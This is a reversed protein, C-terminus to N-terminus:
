NNETRGIFERMLSNIPVAGEDIAPINKLKDRLAAAAPYFKSQPSLGSLVDYVQRRVVCPEYAFMSNIKFDARSEFPHIYKDEGKLVNGWLGFTLEADAARFKFDRILRRMLRLERGDFLEKGNQKLVGEVNIFLRYYEDSEFGGYMIDNLAHLGELIILEDPLATYQEYRDIRKGTPFDYKPLYVTKGKIIDALTSQLLDLNVYSISEYDPKGDTGIPGNERNHFFDDISLTRVKIGGAALKVTLKFSTTTKGACSPGALGCLKVDKRRVLEDAIMDLAADYSSECDSVYKKQGDPSLASIKDTDLNYM